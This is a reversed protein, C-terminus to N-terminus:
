IYIYIYIQYLNKNVNLWKWQLAFDKEFFSRMTVNTGKDIENSWMNYVSVLLHHFVRSTRYFLASVVYVCEFSPVWFQLSLYLVISCRIASARKHISVESRLVSIFVLLLLYVGKLLPDNSTCYIRINARGTVYICCRFRNVHETDRAVQWGMRIALSIVEECSPSLDCCWLVADAVNGRRISM